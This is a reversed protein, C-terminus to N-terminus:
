GGGSGAAVGVALVVVLATWAVSIWGCVLGAKALGRGQYSRNSADIARMARRGMVIAPIGTFVGCLTLSLIGLVLSPVANPHNRAVGRFPDGAQYDVPV